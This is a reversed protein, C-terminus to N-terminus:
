LQKGFKREEAVERRIIRWLDSLKRRAPDPQLLMGGAAIETDLKTAIARRTRVSKEALTYTLVNEPRRHFYCLPLM